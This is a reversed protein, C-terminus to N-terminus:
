GNRAMLHNRAERSAATWRWHVRSEVRFVRGETDLRRAQEVAAEAGELAQRVAYTDLWRGRSYTATYAVSDAHPSM